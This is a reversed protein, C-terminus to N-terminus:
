QRQRQSVRRGRRKVNTKRFGLFVCRLCAVQKRAHKDNNNNREQAFLLQVSGASTSSSSSSVSSICGILNQCQKKHVQTFPSLYPHLAIPSNTAPGWERAGGLGGSALARAGCEWGAYARVCVCITSYLWVTCLCTSSGQPGVARSAVLIGGLPHPSISPLNSCCCVRVSRRGGLGEEKVIFLLPLGGPDVQGCGCVCPYTAM